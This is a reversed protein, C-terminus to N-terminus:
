LAQMFYNTRKEMAIDSSLGHGPYVLSSPPLNALKKLSAGLIRSNGGPLDTRGVSGAFLTDGTFLCNESEFHFCVGGPTHGPTSIVKYTLGADAWEQGDNLARGIEAPRRPVGYFPPMQNERSFAWKLDADHIGIPAPSADYLDALGCIHDMHGHTLLFAAIGLKKQRLFQMILESDSGPDIVIAKDSHGWVVYCNVQFEGVVITEIHM